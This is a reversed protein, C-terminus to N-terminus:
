TNLPLPYGSDRFSPAHKLYMIFRFRGLSIRTYSVHRVPIAVHLANKPHYASSCDGFLPVRLSIHYVPIPGMPFPTNFIYSSDSDGCSPAHHHIQIALGRTRKFIIHHIPIALHPAHEFCM